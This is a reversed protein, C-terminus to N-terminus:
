LPGENMELVWMLGSVVTEPSDLGGKQVECAPVRM